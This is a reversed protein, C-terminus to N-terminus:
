LPQDQPGSVPAHGNGSGGRMWEPRVLHMGLGLELDCRAEQGAGVVDVVRLGLQPVGDVPVPAWSVLARQKMGVHLLSPSFEVPLDVQFEVLGWSRVMGYCRAFVEGGEGFQAQESPTSLLVLEVERIDAGESRYEATAM